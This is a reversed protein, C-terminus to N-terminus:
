RRALPALSRVGVLKLIDLETIEQTAIVRSETPTLFALSAAAAVAGLLAAHKSNVRPMAQDVNAGDPQPVLHGALGGLAGLAGSCIVIWLYDWFGSVELM